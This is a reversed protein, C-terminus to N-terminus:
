PDGHGNVMIVVLVIDVDVIVIVIVLSGHDYYKAMKLHLLLFNRIKPAFQLEGTDVEGFRERGLWGMSILNKVSQLNAVENKKVLLEPANTPARRVTTREPTVM